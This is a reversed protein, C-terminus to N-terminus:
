RRASGGYSGWVTPEPRVVPGNVASVADRIRIPDGMRDAGAGQGGGQEGADAIAGQDRYRDSCEAFGGIDQEEFGMTSGFGARVGDRGRSPWQQGGGVGELRQATGFGVMRQEAAIEVACAVEEPLGGRDARQREWRAM